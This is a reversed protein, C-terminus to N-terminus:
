LGQLEKGLDQLEGDDTAIQLNNLEEEISLTPTPERFRSSDTSQAPPSILIARPAIKGSVNLYYYIGGGVLILVVFLLAFLLVSGKKM